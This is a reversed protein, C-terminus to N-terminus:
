HARSKFVTYLSTPAYCLPTPTPNTTTTLWVLCQAYFSYLYFIWVKNKYPAFSTIQIKRGTEITLLLNSGSWNKQEHQFIYVSFLTTKDNNSMWNSIESSLLHREEELTEEQRSIMEQLTEMLNQRSMVVRKRIPKFEPVSMVGLRDRHRRLHHFPRVPRPSEHHPSVHRPFLDSSGGDASSTILPQSSAMFDIEELKELTDDESLKAPRFESPTTTAADVTSHTSLVTTTTTTTHPIRHRIHVNHLKPFDEITNVESNNNDDTSSSNRELKKSIKDVMDLSLLPM